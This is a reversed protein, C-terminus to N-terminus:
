RVTRSGVMDIDVRRNPQLCAIVKTSRPGTCEGPQTVPETEGKGETHIRQADIGKSVLYTKVAAARRESLRQNYAESGFRDTHGVATIQDPNLDKLKDAFGDLALRGAPRLIAKDFDFLADADLTVREVRPSPTPTPTPPPTVVPAAPPASAPAAAIKAPAGVYKPDCDPMTAPVPGTGNHWCLGYASRVVLGRQDTLYGTDAPNMQAHTMGAPLALALLSFVLTLRQNTRSQKM